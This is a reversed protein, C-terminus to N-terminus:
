AGRLTREHELLDNFTFTGTPRDDRGDLYLRKVAVLIGDAITNRFEAQILRARDGPNSLYGLEVQITPMKTLRLLEWPRHHIRCDVFQTRALLERHVLEALSEGVTSTAGADSGFYFTAIGTALGSPSGDIHLSLVLDADLGNALAAREEATPNQHAGHTLYTEMGTATMRAELRRALDMILDAAIVPGVTWGPDEGGHAPDIVIRKGRLRPGAQRVLEHERLYQPRGGTAMPAIRVLERFTEPGFVGDDPLARHRQFERVCTDLQQGFVGDTRGTDYGLESLKMQLAFVDDGTMPASLTYTLTRSGLSWRADTLVRETVPGVIGDVILGRQQQFARVAADVADDFATLSPDTGGDHPLLGLSTLDARLAAVSPGQDGRRVM